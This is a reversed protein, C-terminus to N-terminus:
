LAYKVPKKATFCRCTISSFSLFMSSIMLLKCRLCRERMILFAPLHININGKESEDGVISEIRTNHLRYVNDIKTYTFRIARRINVHVGNEISYGYITLEGKNDGIIFGYNADLKFNNQSLTYRSQCSITKERTLAPQLYLYACALAIVCGIFSSIVISKM